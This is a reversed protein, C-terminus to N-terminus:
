KHNTRSKKWGDLMSYLCASVSMGEVEIKGMRGKEVRRGKEGRNKERSGEERGERRAGGM